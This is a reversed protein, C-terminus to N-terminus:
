SFHSRRHKLNPLALHEQTKTIFSTLPALLIDFVQTEKELQTKFHCMIRWGPLLVRGEYKQRLAYNFLLPYILFHFLSVSYLKRETNLFHIILFLRGSGQKERRLM